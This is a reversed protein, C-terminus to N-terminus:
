FGIVSDLADDKDKHVFNQQYGMTTIISSHRYLKQLMQIPIKDGSINGFTHRAIYMTLSKTIKAKVAVDNQLVKDIASVKFAISRQLNFKNDFDCGKLDPFLLDDKNEKRDRYKQIIAVAKEPLKLSDAKNNKGMAYHLRKDQIDSWRLRLVDSARMGALYFSFLWLNRAHDEKGGLETEKLSKVEETTLGIKISDPFKIKVKGKGFPYHKPDVLNDAIAQSFVSRIVVLHNVASREGLGEGKLYAKFRDLLSPTIDSFGITIRAFEKFHKVRPKDATYQNYKGATKLRLLYAEAQANFTSGALPKIKNKVARVSVEAKNTELELAGDTGESLKKIIFNNLRVHSAYSRKARQLTEDWEDKKLSYGLHIFSTKRDKTIRMCLPYTGDKRVKERLVIKVTAMNYQKVQYLM